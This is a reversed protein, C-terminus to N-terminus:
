IIRHPMLIVKADLPNIMIFYNALMIMCCIVAFRKLVSLLVALRTESTEESYKAKIRISKLDALLMM